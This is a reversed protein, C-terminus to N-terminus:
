SYFQLRTKFFGLDYLRYFIGKPTYATFPIGPGPFAVAKLLCFQM